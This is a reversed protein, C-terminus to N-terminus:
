FEMYKHIVDPKKPEPFAIGKSNMKGEEQVKRSYVLFKASESFNGLMLYLISIEFTLGPNYKKKFELDKFEKRKEHVLEQITQVKDPTSNLKKVMKQIHSDAELSEALIDKASAYKGMKIYLEAQFVEGKSAEEPYYNLFSEMAHLAEKYRFTSDYLKALEWLAYHNRPDSELIYRLYVEM